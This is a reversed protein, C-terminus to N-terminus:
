DNQQVDDYIWKYAQVSLNHFLVKHPRQSSLMDYNQLINFDVYVVLKCYAFNAAGM